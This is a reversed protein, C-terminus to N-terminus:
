VAPLSVKSQSGKGLFNCEDDPAAQQLVAESHLHKLLIDTLSLSCLVFKAMQRALCSLFHETSNDTHNCPRDRIPWTLLSLTMCSDCM